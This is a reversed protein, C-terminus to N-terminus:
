HRLHVLAAKFALGLVKALSGHTPIKPYSSLSRRYGSVQGVNWDDREHGKIRLFITPRAAKLPIWM